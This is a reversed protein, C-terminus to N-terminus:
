GLDRFDITKINAVDGMSAPSASASPAGEKQLTAAAMSDPIRPASVHHILRDPVWIPSDADQPFVCAYGRSSTLLPDPGKWQGSLLDKWKVLPKANLQEQCWHCLMATTGASDANLINIVFLSHQLIQHPSSYKFEGEKLKQIQLKLTQHAREVIAQGQPNYPIGSNHKIQFQLCFEQFSKSTYAPANDTKLAKPLGLYSFCTFLHQIVDKVAEGTRATAIIVHSFTDVTVHVFSLKGFSSIHTVDMQWLINPKLSRPNVGMPLSNYVTPCHLCSHM